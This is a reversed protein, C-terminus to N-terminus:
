EAEIRALKKLYFGPVQLQAAAQRALNLDAPTIEGSQKLLRCREIHIRCSRHPMGKQTVIALETDRVKLAAKWDRGLEYYIAMPDACIEERSTLNRLCRMGRYFSRTSKQEDGAARHTVALWILGAAQTRKLDNTKSSLEAMHEAHGALEDLLNLAHCIRCLLFLAWARHWNKQIADVSRDTLALSQYAFELAENWRETLCCYETWRYNLIFRESVPERAILGDLHAFGRELDDRYGFPDTQMYTYLVNTLIGVRSVHVRGEPSNFVAMLEMALPLARSFDHIDATLTSLRWYDFFLVWWPEDLRRAEDKGQTLIAFRLEPDTERYRFSEYYLESLKLRKEDGAQNWAAVRRSFEDREMNM